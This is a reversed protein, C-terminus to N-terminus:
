SIRGTISVESPALTTGVSLTNSGSAPTITPCTVTETTPTALVYWVTVPTGASYQQALYTKWTNVDVANTNDCFYMSNKGNSIFFVGDASGFNYRYHTCIAANSAYTGAEQVLMLYMRRVNGSDNQRWDETGTLVIKKIRRTVTGSSDVVDAYDGIKRLPDQLYITQTTGGCTIPIAYEGAHEGTTVLDGCEEPVIPQEPTPTGTQTMNGTISYSSLATGDSTFTIPPVGTITQQGNLLSWFYEQRNIPLPPTVPEGCAAAMFMELRTIPDPLTVTGGSLKYLYMETRSVPDPVTITVGCAKALYMETRTIAAPITIDGGSLKYLFIEERTVPTM